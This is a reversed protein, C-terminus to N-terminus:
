ARQGPEARIGPVRSASSQNALTCWGLGTEEHKFHLNGGRKVSNLPQSSPSIGHKGARWIACRKLRNMALRPLLTAIAAMLFSLCHNQNSRYPMFANGWRSPTSPFPDSMSLTKERGGWGKSHPGGDVLAEIQKRFQEGGLAGSKHICEQIEVLDDDSIVSEFLQRYTQYLSNYSVM